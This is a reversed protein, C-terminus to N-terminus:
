KLQQYIAYWDELSLDQPRKDPSISAKQLLDELESKGM